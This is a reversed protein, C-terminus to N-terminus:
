AVAGQARERPSAKEVGVAVALEVHTFHGGGADGDRQRSPRKGAPRHVYGRGRVAVPMEGEGLQRRADILEGAGVAIGEDGAAAGRPSEPAGRARADDATNEEVGALVKGTIIQRKLAHRGSEHGHPLAEINEIGRREGK